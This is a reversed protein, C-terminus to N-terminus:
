QLAQNLAVALRYGAKALQWRVADLTAANYLVTLDVPPHINYFDPAESACRSVDVNLYSRPEVGPLIGRALMPGYAAQFAIDHSEVAMQAFDTVNTSGGFQAAFESDLSAAFTAEDIAHGSADKMVQNILGTDWTAHLEHESFGHTTLCNGGADANTACHLPQHLDGMFHIIFKLQEAPSYTNSGNPLNSGAKLNATLIGLQATVCNHNACREGIQAAGDASALDLFHWEDTGAGLKTGKITDAWPAVAAMASALADGGAGSRLFPGAQADAALLAAVRAQAQPSLHKAAIRAIVRHGEAGWPLSARASLLLVLAIKRVKRMFSM